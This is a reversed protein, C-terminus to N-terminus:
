GTITVSEGSELPGIFEYFANIHDQGSDDGACWAM